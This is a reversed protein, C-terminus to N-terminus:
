EFRVNEDFVIIKKLVSTNKMVELAIDYQLQEGVFLVEIQADNIIFEVQSVSSTAYLPVMVARNAYLAFDVILNEAMNQSFQGVRQHEAVGLEYMAKAALFVQKEFDNWSIGNWNETLKKRSYIAAKDGYKKAQATVIQSFHLHEM